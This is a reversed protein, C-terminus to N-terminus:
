RMQFLEQHFARAPLGRAAFDAHLARGFGGPGCFWLSAQAWDPVLRRIREGDLLGDEADVLVHLRIGAAAADARLRSKQASSRPRQTHERM